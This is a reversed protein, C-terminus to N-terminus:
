VLMPSHWIDEVDDVESDQGREEKVDAEEVMCSSTASTCRKLTSDRSREYYVIDPEHGDGHMVGSQRLEDEQDEDKASKQMVPIDYAKTIIHRRLRRWELCKDEKVM